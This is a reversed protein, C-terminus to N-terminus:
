LPMKEHILGKGTDQCHISKTLKCVLEEKRSEIYDPPQKM